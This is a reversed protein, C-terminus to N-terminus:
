VVVESVVVVLECVCSLVNDSYEPAVVKEYIQIQVDGVSMGVVM